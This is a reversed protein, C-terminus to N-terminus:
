GLLKLVDALRYPKRLFPQFGLGGFMSSVREEGHASALIVRLDPRLRRAERLIDPSALGPLTVDLFMATLDDTHKRLLELAALGDTAELVTFGERRLMTSVAIRLTEEDEVMLVTGRAARRNEVASVKLDQHQEPSKGAGPLVVRFTTGQRIQSRVTIQGGLRTVIRHVVPLGLGRGQSKTTFFPDFIKAQTEPTM